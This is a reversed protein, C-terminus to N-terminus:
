LLPAAMRQLRATAVSLALRRFVSARSCDSVRLVILARRSYVNRATSNSDSPIQAGPFRRLSVSAERLSVVTKVSPSPELVLRLRPTGSQAMTAVFRTTSPSVNETRRTIAREANLRKSLSVSAKAPFGNITPLAGPIKMSSVTRAMGPERPVNSLVLWVTRALSTAPRASLSERPFVSARLMSSVVTLVSPPRQRCAAAVKSSSDMPRTASRSVALLASRATMNPARIRVSLLRTPFVSPETLTPKEKTKARVTPNPSRLVITVKRAPARLANLPSSWFVGATRSSAALSWVNPIRTRSAPMSVPNMTSCPPASPVEALANAMARELNLRAIPLVVLHSRVATRARPPTPPAGTRGPSPIALLRLRWITATLTDIRAIRSLKALANETSAPRRTTSIRMTSVNRTLILFVFATTSSARSASLLRELFASKSSLPGNRMAVVCQLSRASVCEAVPSRDMRASQNRPVLVFEERSSTAPTTVSLPGRPSVSMATPNQAMGVHLVPSMSVFMEVNWQGVPCIPDTVCKGDVLKGNDCKPGDLVCREGDFQTGKPCCKSADGFYSTVIDDLSWRHLSRGSTGIVQQIPPSAQAAALFLTLAATLHM